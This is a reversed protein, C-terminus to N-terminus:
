LTKAIYKSREKNRSNMEIDSLYQEDSTQNNLNKKEKSNLM